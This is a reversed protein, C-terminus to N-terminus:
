STDTFKFVTNGAHSFNALIRILKKQFLPKTFTHYRLVLTGWTYAVTTIGGNWKANHHSGM